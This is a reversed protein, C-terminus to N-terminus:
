RVIVTSHNTKGYFKLTEHTQFCSLNCFYVLELSNQTKMPINTCVGGNHMSAISIILLHYYIVGSRVHNLTRLAVMISLSLHRYVNLFTFAIEQTTQIFYSKPLVANSREVFCIRDITELGKM